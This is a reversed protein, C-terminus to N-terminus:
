DTFLTNPVTTLARCHRDIDAFRQRAAQVMQDEQECLRVRGLEDVIFQLRKALEASEPYSRVHHVNHVTRRLDTHLADPCYVQRTVPRLVRSITMALLRAFLYVVLLFGTLGVLGSTLSKLEDSLSSAQVYPDTLQMLVDPLKTGLVLLSVGFVGVEAVIGVLRRNPYQVITDDTATASLELHKNPTAIPRLLWNQLRHGSTRAFATFRASPLAITM